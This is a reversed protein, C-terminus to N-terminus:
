LTTSGRIQLEAAFEVTRPAVVSGEIREQLMSWALDCMRDLPQAITTLPTHQYQGDE